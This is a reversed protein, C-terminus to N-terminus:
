RNRRGGQKPDRHHTKDGPNNKDPHPDNPGAKDKAKKQRDAKRQAKTRKDSRKRDRDAKAKDPGSPPPTTPKSVTIPGAPTLPQSQPQTQPEAQADVPPPTLPPVATDPKKGTVWDWVRQAGRGIANLAELEADGAAMLAEHTKDAMFRAVDPPATFPPLPRTPNGNRDRENQHGDADM